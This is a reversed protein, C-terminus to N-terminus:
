LAPVRGQVGELDGKASPEGVGAASGEVVGSTDPLRGLKTYERHVAQLLTHTTIPQNTEAAHYAATTTCCRIDGGTLDDFTRALHDLDLDDARPTHPGLCHNWLSHRLREDPKPFHAILDFRRIFAQDINTFLNTALITIGNHQELRQLLYSTEINAYRDHADKTESRKGFLADAEDFFLIANAHQAATFLRELNKETEGIYKDVVTALNIVYLDLGIDAAVVEAALTKGTGSEGTFLACVGHGRGNGPRLRWTDLVHERFRARRSLDHLQTLVTDPVVLDNWTVDPQIHRALPTLHGTYQRRAAQQLLRTDLPIRHTEAHRRASDLAQTIDDPGLNYPTMAQAAAAPELLPPTTNTLAHLWAAAREEPAWPPPTMEQVPHTGWQHWPITGTLVLPTHPACLQVLLPLLTAANHGLADIPGIRLGLDHLRAERVVATLAATPDDAQALLHLDVALPTETTLTRLAQDATITGAQNTNQGRLYVAQARTLAAQLRNAHERLAPTGLPYLSASSTFPALAPDPTDPALLHAVVRDAAKLPRNLFPHENDTLQWLGYRAAPGTTLLSWAPTSITPQGALYLATHATPHGLAPDHNLYGYLRAFRRDLHPALAVLLIETEHESLTFAHTLDRLPLRHGTDEAADAAEEIDQLMRQELPDPALSAPCPEHLLRVAEQQSLQMQGWLSAVADQAEAASSTVARRIRHELVTLHRQLYWRGASATDLDTALPPAATTGPETSTM